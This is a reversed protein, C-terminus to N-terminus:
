LKELWNTRNWMGNEYPLVGWDSLSEDEIDAIEIDKATVPEQGMTKAKVWGVKLQMPIVINTGMAHHRRYRKGMELESVKKVQKDGFDPREKVVGKGGKM